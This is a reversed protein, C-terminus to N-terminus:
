SRLAASSAVSRRGAPLRQGESSAISGTPALTRSVVTFAQRFMAVISDGSSLGPVYVFAGLERAWCEHRPDDADGCVILLIDPRAAVKRAFAELEGATEGAPNMLDIVVLDPAQRLAMMLPAGDVPADDVSWGALEAAAGLRHRLSRDASAVHCVPGDAVSELSVRRGLKGTAPLRTAVSMREADFDFAVVM